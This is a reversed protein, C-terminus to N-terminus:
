KNEESTFYYHKGHRKKNLPMCQTENKIVMSIKDFNEYTAFTREFYNQVWKCGGKRKM